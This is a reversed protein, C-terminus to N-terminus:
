IAGGDIVTFKGVKRGQPEPTVGNLGADVLEGITWVEMVDGFCCRLFFASASAAASDTAETMLRIMASLDGTGSSQVVSRM